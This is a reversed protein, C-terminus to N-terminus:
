RGLKNDDRQNDNGRLVDKGGELQKVPSPDHPEPQNAIDRLEHRTPTRGLVNDTKSPYCYNEKKRTGLMKNNFYM